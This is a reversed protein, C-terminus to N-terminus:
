QQYEKIKESLVPMLQQKRSIIHPDFGSHEDFKTALLDSIVASLAGYYVFLSGEGMVDTFLMVMLDLGSSEQEKRINEKFEPLIKQVEEMHSYNTQGIAIHYNGIAYNKLDRNLIEHMSADTLAVSAGLLQRAYADIDPIGAQEALWKATFRDEATTTASKFNLTDSLIASLLIGSMTANPMFGAEQYMNALITCTCGCRHNRYECPEDTQIDGIHHHDIIAVIHAQEIHPLAQLTTSHDVLAFQRHFYNRTHFRSVGGIVEGQDNLVPYSRVRSHGMKAAVEDVYENEHFVILKRTMVQEVSYSETIVQATHMTDAETQLIACGHKEATKLLESDAKQGCTLVLCRSGREIALCQKSLGSSLLTIGGDLSFHGPDDLTLISVKGNCKFNGPDYVIEGGVTHAINTLTATAMLENLNASPAIRIRSLDSTTCIGVLQNNEDEVFLSRNQTRLMLHWAHHVTEWTHIFTPQDLEIDSLQTRADSLLLPNELQFRKLIFKTEENLPGQRCAIAEKGELRLLGAYTISACISDSDPHKHGVVYITKNM